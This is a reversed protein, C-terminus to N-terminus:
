FVPRLGHIEMLANAAARQTAHYASVMWDVTKCNMGELILRRVSESPIYRRELESEAQKQASAPDHAGGQPFPQVAPRRSQELLKSWGTQGFEECQLTPDTVGQAMRTFEGTEQDAEYGQCQKIAM